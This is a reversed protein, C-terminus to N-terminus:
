REAFFEIVEGDFGIVFAIRVPYVTACPIDVDKPEMKNKCGAAIAAKYAGDVDAVKFALHEWLGECLVDTMRNAFIEVCCGDGCDLMVARTNGEGWAKVKKLGLVKEYFNLSKDFDKVRIAVHHMGKVYSM